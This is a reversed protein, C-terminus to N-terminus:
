SQQMLEREAEWWFHGGDGHPRGAAEWKLAVAVPDSSYVNKKAALGRELRVVQGDMLDIAPYLLM